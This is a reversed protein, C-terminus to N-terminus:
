IGWKWPLKKGLLLEYFPVVEVTSNNLSIKRQEQYSAVYGKQISFKRMFKALSDTEIKGYKIEIPVISKGADDTLIIDVENKMSDRYFFEANLAHALAGEFIFPMQESSLLSPLFITPYFKKAKKETKRVNRSFNYLKRILFASELYSLYTSVTQRSASFDRALNNIELIQGPEYLIVRLLRSLLNVDEIGFIEPIDKYIIKEIVNEKIYKEATEADEEIIEPFGNSILYSRFLRLIEAQHITLPGQLPREKFALFEPFSLQRLHFEYFRGVLSERSKKRIFLSESGSFFFKINPYIDYFRKLQEEWGELKQIEDFFFLVCEKEIDKPYLALYADMLQRLTIDKMDDFSFYVINERPVTKLSDEILRLLLTTKGVRRLGILAVMQRKPVFKQIADYLARHKWEVHFPGRWWKNGESLARQLMMLNQM